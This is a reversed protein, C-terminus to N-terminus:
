PNFEHPDFGFVDCIVIGLKKFAANHATHPSEMGVEEQHMHLMEHAMVWVLRNVWGCCYGSIGIEHQLRKRGRKWRKHYGATNKDRTVKFIVDDSDPMNWDSFPPCECLFDYLAVLREKNLPLAM